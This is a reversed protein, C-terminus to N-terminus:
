SSAVAQKLAVKDIKNSANKPLEDAFVIRRPVKYNAMRARCWTNMSQESELSGEKLVIFACGVEGMREDPLGVVAVQSVEPHEIISAEIEAPYCNFGGVIFMDKLRDTITLNGMSDVHGVDGTHLWDDPDITKATADPDNFYGKMVHYGRLCVEGDIGAGLTKGNHDVIKLETGPIPAGSTGAIVSVPAEPDCITALGGCETLGYATTVVSIGLEDRMREILSPPVSSAGTVAVRLSRLDATKLRPHSLMSLFLTPPGPLVTVKEHEVRSFIEEADFVAHPLITAGSILCALWGAKYGFCHFFPNVVLYRDGQQLEIIKSYERFARLTQGHASMVGKPRGTTGSTFLLDCLDNETVSLARDRAMEETIPASSSVFSEFAEGGDPAAGLSVLHELTDPCLGKLMSPYDIDLFRDIVFLIRSGSRQIIDAAEQGKMRTNIPVLVAGACHIGLAVVVWDISNPAWLCVRDGKEIGKAMLGRSVLLAREVLDSYSIKAGASEIATVSGLESAKSLLMKPISSESAALHSSSCLSAISM